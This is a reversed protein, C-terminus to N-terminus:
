EERYNGLGRYIRKVVDYAMKPRRFEDVIGKNNRSKPRQLGWERSVRVDCFQWIYSGSCLRYESIEKLQKELIEAQLEESWMEHATSRFGYIAGAGVETILFPKDAGSGSERIRRYIGDMRETATDNTYWYPYINWSCVDPLNQCIDNEFKCSAYSVPRSKDLRRILEFQAQYCKRGYETESSCENMIGWIYISPHNYHVAIMERICEECQPEFYPNRMQEESLGRAHNEEWVLIGLEDCLDLFAEDNPYHSTRVSNGGMDLIRQLDYAMAAKPLACGYMPHDEHRCFGKIRVRKGNLLISQGEVRVVRFGTREILDDVAKGNMILETRVFYLVPNEMSWSEVGLVEMEGTWVLNDGGPITINHAAFETGAVDGQIDATQEQGSINECFVELRTEWGNTTKRLPTVHVRSLFVDPVIELVVDRTIGCYSMYDNPFDLAYEKRMSNDAIISLTHRGKELKRCVGAFPTYSGYHEMLRGADVSVKAYHSVGNCVIKVNEQSEIEFETRFETEGKFNEFGPYTEVSSPVLVKSWKEEGVARFDWLKGTLEMSRRIKHTQFTRM